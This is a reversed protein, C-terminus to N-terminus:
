APIYYYYSEDSGYTFYIEGDGFGTALPFTAISEVVTMDDTSDQPSPSTYLFGNSQSYYTGNINSLAPFTNVAVYPSSVAGDFPWDIAWGTALMTEIITQIPESFFCGGNDFNALALDLIREFSAPYELMTTCNGITQLIADITIKDAPNGLETIIFKLSFPLPDYGYTDQTLPLIFDGQIALAELGDPFITVEYGTDGPGYVYNWGDYQWYAPVVTEALHKNYLYPKLLETSSQGQPGVPGVFSYPAWYTTSTPIIADNNSICIYYSGQYEVIENTVYGNNNNATTRRIDYKFGHFGQEGQPGELGETSLGLVGLINEQQTENLDDERLFALMDGSLNYLNFNVKDGPM